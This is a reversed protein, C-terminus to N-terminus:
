MKRGSICPSAASNISCYPLANSFTQACRASSAPAYAPAYGFAPMVHSALGGVKSQTFAILLLLARIDHSRLRTRMAVAMLETM